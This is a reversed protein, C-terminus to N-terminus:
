NNNKNNNHPVSIPLGGYPQPMGKQLSIATPKTNPNMNNQNMNTNSYLDSARLKNINMNNMMM